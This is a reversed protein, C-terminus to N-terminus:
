RGSRPAAPPADVRLDDREGGDQSEHDGRGRQRQRLQDGSLRDALAVALGAEEAASAAAVAFGALLRRLLRRGLLGSSDGGGSVSSRPAAVGCRPALGSPWWRLGAGVTGVTGPSSRGNSGRLVHSPASSAAARSPPQSAPGVRAGACTCWLRLGLPPFQGGLHLPPSGWGEGYVPGGSARPMRPGRLAADRVNQHQYDALYPCRLTIRREGSTTLRAPPRTRPVAHPLGPRPHDAGGEGALDLRGLQRGASSGVSGLGSGHRSHRRQTTQAESVTIRLEDWLGAEDTFYDRIGDHGRYPEERGLLEGTVAHFEIDPDALALVADVDRREFAEVGGARGCRGSPGWVAVFM